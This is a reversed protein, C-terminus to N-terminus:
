EHLVTIPHKSSRTFEGDTMIIRIEGSPQREIEHVVGSFLSHPFTESDIIKQGPQLEEALVQRGPFRQRKDRNM